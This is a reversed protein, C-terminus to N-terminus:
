DALEPVPKQTLWLGTDPVFTAWAFWFSVYAEPVQVLRQGEMSGSIARGELTWESGTEVGIYRGEVVGFTLAQGGVTTRFAVAAKSSRDWFVVIDEGDAESHVVKRDGASDLANFAFAMGGGDVFPIGLVREKPPRRDDFDGQPFLVRANNLSEYDGYPYQQYNRTFETSISIVKTDPYLDVWADWRMEIAALMELMQGDRPGCRAGRMMQPWLSQDETRDYLILNNQFILGSVGFEVGGAATRDFVM